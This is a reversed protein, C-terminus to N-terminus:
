QWGSRWQSSHGRQRCHDRDPDVISGGGGGGHNSYHGGDASLTGDVRLTGAVVLEIAGGGPNNYDAGGSGLETPQTLSGYAAGGGGNATGGMGGHGGGAAWAGRVGAGPGQGSAYGLSSASVVGGTQILISQAQIVVGAGVWQTDIQSTNNTSYCWVSADTGVNLQNVVWIEGGTIVVQTGNTVSVVLNTGEMMDAPTSAGLQGNNDLMVYGLPSNAGKWYITGAGGDQGNGGHAGGWATAPGTFTATQYKISIRGGGGGNDNGGQAGNAQITGGGTITGAQIWISGGAGGGHNAYHGGNASITGDLQLTGAVILEIAGGGPNGSDSGGSGLETPQTLSGYTAGGGANFTGGMGGHGGGGGWGYRVGTGPGQGAAYGLGDASVMSGAAVTVSGAKITVGVGAWQNSVQGSTNAGQCLVTSNDQVTLATSVTLTSGGSLSLTGTDLVAMSLFSHDGNATLTCGSVVIDQGDYSTDGVDILTDSTFVAAPSTTALLPGCLLAALGITAKRNSLLPLMNKFVNGTNKM